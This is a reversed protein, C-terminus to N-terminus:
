KPCGKIDAWGWEPHAAQNDSCWKQGDPSNTRWWEVFQELKAARGEPSAASNGAQTASAVAATCDLSLLLTAPTTVSGFHSASRLRQSVVTCDNRPLETGLTTAVQYALHWGSLMESAKGYTKGVVSPTNADAVGAGVLTGSLLSLAAATASLIRKVM